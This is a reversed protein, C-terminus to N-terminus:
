VESLETQKMKLGFQLIADKDEYEMRAQNYAEEVNKRYAEIMSFVQQAIRFCQNDTQEIKTSALAAFDKLDLDKFERSLVLLKQFFM